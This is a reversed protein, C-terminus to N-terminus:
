FVLERFEKKVFVVNYNPVDFIYKDKHMTLKATGQKIDINIDFEFKNDNNSYNICDYDSLGVNGSLPNRTITLYASDGSKNETVCVDFSSDEISINLYYLIENVDKAGFLNIEEIVRLLLDLNFGGIIDGLQLVIHKLSKDILKDELVIELIDASVKKYEIFYHIRSPRNKLFKTIRYDSNSTFLFINHSNKTGDLFSLLESQKEEDEYKKEFEDIFLIYSSKISNLFELVNGCDKINYYQNLILIPLGSENCIYKASLSKGCGKEGNLVIGVNTDVSSFKTLLRKTIEVHNGYIKEPLPFKDFNEKELSFTKTFQDNVINYIGIPLTELQLIDSDIVKINNKGFQFLSM